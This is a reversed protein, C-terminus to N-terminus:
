FAKTQIYDSTRFGPKKLHKSSQSHGTKHTRLTQKSDSDSDEDEPSEESSDSESEGRASGAYEKLDRIIKERRENEKNLYAIRDKLSSITTERHEAEVLM